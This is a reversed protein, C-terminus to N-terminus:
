DQDKFSITVFTGFIVNFIRWINDSIM